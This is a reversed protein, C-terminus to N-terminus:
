QVRLLSENQNTTKNMLQVKKQITKIVELIEKYTKKGSKKTENIQKKEM